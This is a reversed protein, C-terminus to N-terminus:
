GTLCLSQIKKRWSRGIAKEVQTVTDKWLADLKVKSDGVLMLSGDEPHIVTQEHDLENELAAQYESFDIEPKSGQRQFRRPTSQALMSFTGSLLIVSMGVAVWRNLFPKREIGKSNEIGPLDVSEEALIVFCANFRQLTKV